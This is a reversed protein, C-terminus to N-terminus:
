QTTPPITAQVSAAVAETPQFQMCFDKDEVVPHACMVSVGSNTNVGFVSPPMLFCMRVKTLIKPDPQAMLGFRCDSCKARVKSM